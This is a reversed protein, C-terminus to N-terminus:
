YAVLFLRARRHWAGVGVAYLTQWEAAYGARALGELVAGLGKNKLNSSNEIVVWHPRTAEIVRLMEFWLGSAEGELGRQKGAVSIDNFFSVMQRREVLTRVLLDSDLKAPTTKQKKALAAAFGDFHDLGKRAVHWTDFNCRLGAPPTAAACVTASPLRSPQRGSAALPSHAPKRLM